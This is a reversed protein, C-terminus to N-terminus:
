LESDHKEDDSQNRGEEAEGPHCAERPCPRLDEKDDEQDEGHSREQSVPEPPPTEPPLSPEIRCRLRFLRVAPITGAPSSAVGVKLFPVFIFRKKADTRIAASPPYVMPRSFWFPVVSFLVSVVVVWVLSPLVVPPVVFETSVFVVVLGAVGPPPPAVDSVVVLFVVSVVVSVVL